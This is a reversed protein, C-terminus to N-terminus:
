NNTITKARPLNEMEQPTKVSKKLGGNNKVSAPLPGIKVYKAKYPLDGVGFHITYKLIFYDLNGNTAGFRKPQVETTGNPKVPNTGTGGLTTSNVTINGCVDTFKLGFNFSAYGGPRYPSGTFWGGISTTHYQGVGPDPIVLAKHPPPAYTSAYKGLRHSSVVKYTGAMQSNCGYNFKMLIPKGSAIVSKSGTTKSVLLKVVPTKKLHFADIGQSLM